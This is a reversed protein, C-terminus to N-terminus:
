GSLLEREQQASLGLQPSSFMAGKIERLLGVGAILISIERCCIHVCLVHVTVPVCWDWFVTQFSGQCRLTHGAHTARKLGVIM